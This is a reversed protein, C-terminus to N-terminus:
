FLQYPAVSLTGMTIVITRKTLEEEKEEEKRREKEDEYEDEKMMKM